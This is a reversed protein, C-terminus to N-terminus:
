WLGLAKRMAVKQAGWANATEICAEGSAECPLVALYDGDGTRTLPETSIRPNDAYYRVVKERYGPRYREGIQNEELGVVVEAAAEATPYDIDVQRFHYSRRGTDDSTVRLM